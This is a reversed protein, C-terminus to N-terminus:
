KEYKKKIIKKIINYSYDLIKKNLGPYVGLWFSSNM